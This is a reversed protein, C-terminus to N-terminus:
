NTDILCNSSPEKLFYECKTDALSLPKSYGAIRGNKYIKDLIKQNFFRSPQFEFGDMYIPVEKSHTIYLQDRARSLGVYLIRREEAIAVETGRSRVHPFSNDSADILFVVKWELGKASHVTTVVLGNNATIDSLLPANLLSLLFDPGEFTTDTKPKEYKKSIDSIFEFVTEMKHLRRKYTARYYSKLYKEYEIFNLFEKLISILSSGDLAEDLLKKRLNNVMQAFQKVQISKKDFQPFEFVKLLPEGTEQSTSIAENLKSPSIFKKYKRILNLTFSDQEPYLLLRIISTCLAGEETRMGTNGGVLIVKFPLLEELTSIVEPPYNGTRSIIAIESIPINEKVVLQSIKFAVWKIEESITEFYYYCPEVSPLNSVLDTRSRQLRESHLRKTDEDIVDYCLDLIKQTSRYNRTFVLRKVDPFELSMTDFLSTM